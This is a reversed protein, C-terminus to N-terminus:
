LELGTLFENIIEITIRPMNTTVKPTSLEAIYAGHSGPLIVLRANPMHRLMDVAHEPNVVDRDGNIILTPFDIGEIDATSLENFTQMMKQSKNIQDQLNAGEPAISLFEDRLLNPMDDPTISKQWGELLEPIIGSRSYFASALVLKQVKEPHRIALQLAVQGGNSFGFINASSINLQTLLEATDDAMQELSFPRDIDATHGHGQQEIGIVWHTKALEPLVRGFTTNIGSGGGHLLVLPTGKHEGHKEYYMNLSGILRYDSNKM